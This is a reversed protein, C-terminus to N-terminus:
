TFYRRHLTDPHGRRLSRGCNRIANAINLAEGADLDGSAVAERLVDVTDHVRGGGLRRVAFDYAGTDDTVFRGGLKEAFYIGEAEGIHATPPRRGENLGVHLQLIGKLDSTEPVVPALLWSVALIARCGPFGLDAAERIEDAVAQTWHPPDLHGYRAELIDLRQIEGFHRLTVSDCLYPATM